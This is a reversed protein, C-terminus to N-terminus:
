VGGVQRGARPRNQTIYGPRVLRAALRARSLSMEVNLTPLRPAALAAHPLLRQTGGEPPGVGQFHTRALSFVSRM